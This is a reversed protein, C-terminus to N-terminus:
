HHICKYSERLAPSLALWRTKSYGLMRKYQMEAEECFDKLNEVRVTYIYFYSYIKKVIHKVDVPLLGAVTQIANHAIHAACGVGIIQRGLGEQLKKFVNCQGSREVGGFNTNSKTGIIPM